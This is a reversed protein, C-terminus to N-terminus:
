IVFAMTFEEAPKGFPSLYTRKPLDPLPSTMIRRVPSAPPFRVWEASALSSKDPTARDFGRKVYAPVERLNRYLPGSNLKIDTQIHLANLVVLLFVAAYFVPFLLKISDPKPKV